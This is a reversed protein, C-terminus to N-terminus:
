VNSAEHFRHDSFGSLAERNPASVSEPLKTSPRPRGHNAHFGHQREAEKRAAVADDFSPFAGLYYRTNDATISACWSKEKSSWYVGSAGSTNLKNLKNNRSNDGQSVARLNEIRNDAGDGNIHDIVLGVPIMENHYIIWAVRHAPITVGFFVGSRHGRKTLGDLAPLGSRATNCARQSAQSKFHSLPRDKWTLIGTDPSYDFSEHIVRLLRVDATTGTAEGFPRRM